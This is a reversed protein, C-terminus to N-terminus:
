PSSAVRGRDGRCARYSVHGLDHGEDVASDSGGGPNVGGGDTITQLTVEHRGPQEFTHRAAIGSARTGDRFLWRYMVIETEEPSTSLSGDLTVQLPSHGHDPTVRPIAVPSPRRPKRLLWESVESAYRTAAGDPTLTPLIHPCGPAITWLEASAGGRCGGTWREITTDLGPVEEVLDHREEIADPQASRSPDM